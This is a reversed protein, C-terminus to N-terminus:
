LHTYAILIRSDSRPLDEPLLRLIQEACNRGANEMLVIGSIGFEKIAVRDVEISQERTLFLGEDM